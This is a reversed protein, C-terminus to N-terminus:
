ISLINLLITCTPFVKKIIIDNIIDVFTYVAGIMRFNVIIDMFTRTFISSLSSIQPHSKYTFALYPVFHKSYNLISQIQVRRNTFEMTDSLM